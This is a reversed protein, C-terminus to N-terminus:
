QSVYPTGLTAQVFWFLGLQCVIFAAELVNRAIKPVNSQKGHFINWTHETNSPRVSLQRISSHLLFANCCNKTKSEM